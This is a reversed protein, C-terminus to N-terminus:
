RDERKVAAPRSRIAHVLHLIMQVTMLLLAFLIIGKTYAPFAPNWSTGSRELQWEGLPNHSATYFMRWAAYSMGVTFVLGLLGNVIDLWRRVPPSVWDYILRVRIHKNRALAAPGGLAFLVAIMFVTSEHVWSTPANFGYRLVVEYVTIAMAFFVLWAVVKGAQGIARDFGTLFVGDQSEDLTVAEKRPDTAAGDPLTEPTM